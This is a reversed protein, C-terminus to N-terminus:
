DCDMIGGGMGDGFFICGHSSRPAQPEPPALVGYQSFDPEQQKRLREQQRDEFRQQSEIQEQRILQNLVAQPNVNQASGAGAYLLTLAVGIALPKAVM